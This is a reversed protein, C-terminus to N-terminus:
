YNLSVDDSADADDDAPADSAEVEDDSAMFVVPEVPAFFPDRHLLLLDNPLRVTLKRWGMSLSVLKSTCHPEERLLM